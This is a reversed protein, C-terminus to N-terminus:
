DARLADLPNLRLARIAPIATAFLAAIALAVGAAVITATNFRSEPVLQQIGASMLAALPVGALIGWGALRLGRSIVYTAVRARTAGLALRVGIERTDGALVFSLVAYLGLAALLAGAAAFIATVIAGMRSQLLRESRVADMTTIDHLALTPDLAASATKIAPVLATADGARVMLHLTASSPGAPHQALPLYWAETYEGRDEITGAVGIVTLWPQPGGPMGRKVRKGLPDQGPWFQRAAREDVIV